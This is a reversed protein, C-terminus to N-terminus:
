NTTHAFRNRIDKIARLEGYVEEDILEILYAVDIKASFTNLAGSGEFIKAAVTNSLPRGHALLLKELWDEVIGAVVLANGADGQKSLMHMHDQISLLPKQSDVM